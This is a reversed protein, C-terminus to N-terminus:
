PAKAPLQKMKNFRYSIFVRLGILGFGLLFMASPETVNTATVTDANALYTGSLVSKDLDFTDNGSTSETLKVALSWSGAIFSPYLSAPVTFTDTVWAGNSESLLGLFTSTGGTVTWLEGNVSVHTHTLALTAIVISLAPPAFTVSHTYTFPSDDNVTTVTRTDSGVTQTGSAAFDIIDSFPIPVALTRKPAALLILFSLILFTAQKCV